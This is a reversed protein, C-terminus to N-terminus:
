SVFNSKGNSNIEEIELNYTGVNLDPLQIYAAGLAPQTIELTENYSSNSIGLIKVNYTSDDLLGSPIVRIIGGPVGQNTSLDPSAVTVSGFHPNATNLDLDICDYTDSNDNLTSSLSFNTFTESSSEITFLPTEVFPQSYSGTPNYDSDFIVGKTARIRLKYNGASLNSPIIGNILPTYFDHVTTLTTPNDFSGGATSLELVFRNNQNNQLDSELILGDDNETDILEYVGKPDIHVSVGSGPAYIASSNFYVIEIEAETQQSFLSSSILLWFFLLFYKRVLYNETQKLKFM